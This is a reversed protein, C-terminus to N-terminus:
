PRSEVQEDVMSWLVKLTSRGNPNYLNDHRWLATHGDAFGFNASGMPELPAKDKKPHRYYPIYSRPSDTGPFEPARGSRGGDWDGPFDNVGGGGGFREGPRGQIGIASNTFWRDRGSGGSSLGWAEGILLVDSSRDVVADFWRGFQGMPARGGNVASSGWYNMTYSRGASPHNPCMMIGGGVTVNGGAPADVDSLQPLYMGIRQEDYWYERTDNNNPPFKSKYDGSYLVLAKVLGNVNAQCKINRASDRARGLAPLLIGILLAIIAIVVLLEILTFGRRDARDM